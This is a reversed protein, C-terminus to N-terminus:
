VLSVNITNMLKEIIASIEELQQGKQSDQESKKESVKELNSQADHYGVVGVKNEAAYIKNTM